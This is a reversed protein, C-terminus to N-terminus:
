FRVSPTGRDRVRGVRQSDLARTSSNERGCPGVLHTMSHSHMCTGSNLALGPVALWHVGVCDMYRICSPVHGTKHLMRRQALWIKGRSQVASTDVLADSLSLESDMFACHCCSEVMWTLLVLVAPVVSRM